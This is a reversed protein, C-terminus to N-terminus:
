FKTFYKCTNFDILNRYPCKFFVANKQTLLYNNLCKQHINYNFINITENNNDLYNLCIPCNDNYSINKFYNYPMNTIFWGDYIMRNIDIFIDYNSFFGRIYQTEKKIIKKIIKNKLEENNKNDKINDYPTGTNNSYKYVNKNILLLGYCIYNNSKYPPEDKSITIEINIDFEDILKLNKNFFEIFKIYDNNNKFSIKIKKITIIREITKKDYYIDYFNNQNLNSDEEFIKKFHNSLIRCCVYEDYIIGNNIFIADELLDYFNNLKKYYEM